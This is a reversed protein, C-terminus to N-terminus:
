KTTVYFYDRSYASLFRHNGVGNMDGLLPVAKIKGALVQFSEFHVWYNNIDLQIAQYAGADQLARALAPLTLSPGAAYYLTRGDRSIGLGSRYTATAGYVTLGWSLPDNDATHPNIEGNQIILPGNQRWTLLHPSSAIDTGWAGIRLTGDAYIGVTGMGGRPAILTVGNTMVGFHGHQAKFGGNFAALLRGAQLDAAPIRGSRLVQVPSRPEDYGLVFHLRTAQLDFAVVAAYAYARAPDPQLYTREALMNGAEDQLFATWQGEGTMSGLPPIPAPAWGTRGNQVAVPRNLTSANKGGASPAPDSAWPAPPAAQATGYKLKRLKDETQLVLNELDAVFQDGVVRRATDVAQAGINPWLNLAAYITAALIALSGALTGLIVGATHLWSHKRVTKSM